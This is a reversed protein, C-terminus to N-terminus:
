IGKREKIEAIKAKLNKIVTAKIGVHEEMIEKQKNEEIIGLFEGIKRFFKM